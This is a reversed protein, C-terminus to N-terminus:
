NRSEASEKVVLPPKRLQALVETCTVPLIKWAGIYFPVGAWRWSDIELRLAAFTEM